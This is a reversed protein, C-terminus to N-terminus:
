TVFGDIVYTLLAGVHDDEIPAHGIEEENWCTQLTETTNIKQGMRLIEEDKNTQQQTQM